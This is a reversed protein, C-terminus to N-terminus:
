QDRFDLLRKIKRELIGQPKNMGKRITLGVEEHGKGHVPNRVSAGLVSM